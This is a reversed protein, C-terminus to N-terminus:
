LLEYVEYVGGDPLRRGKGIAMVGNLWRYREASTDFFIAVRHYFRSTDVPEGRNLRAMDEASGHRLGRYVMGILARDDTELVMRCDLSVAGDPEVTVWDSGGPLVHGRLRDGEIDCETVIVVRRELGRTAGLPQSDIKMRMTFLPRTEIDPM